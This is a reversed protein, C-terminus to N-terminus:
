EKAFYSSIFRQLVVPFPYQHIDKLSIKKLQFTNHLSELSVIIFQIFLNQHSLIHKIPPYLSISQFTVNAKNLFNKIQKESFLKDKSEELCFEYLGQWIDGDKRKSIFIYQHNEIFVFYNLYRNQKLVSKSKVPLLDVENKEFAKCYKQLLCNWCDPNQPTCYTAGFEMIAQNYASPNKKDLLRGALEKFMKKGEASDISTQIGFFRSLVRFVNGDLVPYPQNYAFSAIAAATYEGVGKLKLIDEYQVPFKGGFENVIQRAAYHLNRARSYYGLGQWLHLVEDESANALAKINPFKEIFKLYYSLGQKVQTQQLIIESIWIKYPDQIDRWPLDRKNVQYYELIKKRFFTEVNQASM